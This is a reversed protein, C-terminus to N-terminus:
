PHIIALKRQECLQVWMLILKLMRLIKGAFRKTFCEYFNPTITRLSEYVDTHMPVPEIDKYIEMTTLMAYRLHAAEFRRRDLKMRSMMDVPTNQKSRYINICTWYGYNIQVNCLNCTHVTMYKSKLQPAAIWLQVFKLAHTTTIKITISILKKNTVSMAWSCNPMLSKCYACKLLPKAPQCLTNWNPGTQITICLRNIELNTTGM